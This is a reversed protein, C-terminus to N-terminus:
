NLEWLSLESVFPVSSLPTTLFKLGIKSIYCRHMAIATLDCNQSFSEDNMMWILNSNWLCALIFNPHLSQLWFIKIKFEGRLSLIWIYLKYNYPMMFLYYCRWDDFNMVSNWVEDCMSWQLDLMSRCSDFRSRHLDLSLLLMLGIYNWAQGVYTWASHYLKLFFITKMSLNHILFFYNWM